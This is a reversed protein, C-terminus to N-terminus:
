KYSESTDRQEVGDHLLVSLSKFHFHVKKKKREHTLFFFRVKAEMESQPLGFQAGFSSFFLDLASM